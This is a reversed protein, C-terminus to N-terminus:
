LLAWDELVTGSVGLGRGPRNLATRFRIARKLSVEGEVETDFVVAMDDELLLLLEAEDADGEANERLLSPRNEM